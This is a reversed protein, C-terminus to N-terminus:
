LWRCWRPLGATRSRDAPPARTVCPPARVKVDGAGTSDVFLQHSPDAQLSARRSVRQPTSGGEKKAQMVERIRMMMLDAAVEFNRQGLELLLRSFLQIEKQDRQDKVGKKEIVNKTM